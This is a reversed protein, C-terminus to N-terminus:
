LSRRRRRRSRHPARLRPPLRGPSRVRLHCHSHDRGTSPLSLESLELRSGAANAMQRAPHELCTRVRPLTRWRLAAPNRCPAWRRLREAGEATPRPFECAACKSHGKGNHLTCRPCSWAKNATRGNVRQERGARRAGRGRGCQTSTAKGVSAGSANAPVPLPNSNPGREYVEKQHKRTIEEEVTGVTCFRWIHVESREQGWRRVRGIAQLEFAVSQERTAANMPHVLFVHNACTLNTGSANKELSLLLVDISSNDNKFNAICRSRAFVSGQLQAYKIGFDQFAAAIRELLCSWQCFVICKASPDSAKIQQLTRVINGLKSGYKQWKKSLEEEIVDATKPVETEAKKDGKTSEMEGM